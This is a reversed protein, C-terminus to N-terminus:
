INTFLLDRTVPFLFLMSIHDCPTLLSRVLLPQQTTQEVRAVVVLQFSWNAVLVCRKDDRKREDNLLDDVDYTQIVIMARM